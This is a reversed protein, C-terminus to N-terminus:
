CYKGVIDKIGVQKEDMKLIIDKTVKSGPLPM